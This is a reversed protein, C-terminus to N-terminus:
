RGAERTGGGRPASPAPDILEHRLARLRALTAEESAGTLRTFGAVDAAVIAALRREVQPHEV